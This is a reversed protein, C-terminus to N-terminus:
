GWVSCRSAPPWSPSWSPRRLRHFGGPATRSWTATSSLPSGSIRCRELPELPFAAIRGDKAVCFHLPHFGM